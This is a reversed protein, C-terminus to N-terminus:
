FRMELWVLHELIDGVRRKGKLVRVRRKIEEEKAKGFGLDDEQHLLFAMEKTIIVRYALCCFLCLHISRVKPSQPLPLPHSSSLIANFCTNIM